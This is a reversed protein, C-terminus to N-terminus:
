LMFLFFRLRLFVLAIKVTNKNPISFLETDQHPSPINRKVVMDLAVRPGVWGGIWYPDPAREPTFCTPLSASCEGGDLGLTLSHM